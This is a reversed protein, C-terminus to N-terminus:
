AEREAQERLRAVEDLLELCDSWALFQESVKLVFARQVIEDWWERANHAARLRKEAGRGERYALPHRRGADQM